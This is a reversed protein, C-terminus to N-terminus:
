RRKYVQSRHGVKLVLVLLNRDFIEYIIRYDGVRVRYLDEPGHLKVSDPPRPDAGLGELCTLVRRQIERDLKRIQRGAAPAVEVTYNV